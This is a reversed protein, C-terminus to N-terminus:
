LGHDLDVNHFKEINILKNPNPRSIKHRLKVCTFGAFLSLGIDHISYIVLALPLAGAGHRLNLHHWDLVSNIKARKFLDAPYRQIPLIFMVIMLVAHHM